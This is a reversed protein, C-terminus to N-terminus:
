LKVRSNLLTIEYTKAHFDAIFDYDVFLVRDKIEEFIKSGVKDDFEKERRAPSVVYFKACFDQLDYFKTLSNVINTSHEVEFFASPLKRENFWIVDITKARRLINPYSFEHIRSIKTMSSLPKNVFVKNKDQPPVYTDFGKLNGIEVILGQFYTHSFESSKKDEKKASTSEFRLKNKYDKLAWLGPKVKFFFRPNQVIRRISAFPTKTKWEIGPIQMANEYLFGLTAYGGNAGMTEIVAERQNM